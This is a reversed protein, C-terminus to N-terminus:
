RRTEASHDSHSQRVRRTRQDLVTEAVQRLNVGAMNYGINEVCWDRGLEGMRRARAPDAVLLDIAIAMAGVDGPPVVVGRGEGLIESLDSVATAVVPKGLAMADYVKSPVQLESRADAIQPICVVDAANLVEPLDEVPCPGRVEVGELSELVKRYPDGPDGGIVILTASNRMQKVAAALNEIGKHPRPTGLFMVVTRGALGLAAKAEDVLDPRPRLRDTDKAHPILVGGYRKQLGHSAVTIADAAGIYRAMWRTAVGGNPNMLDRVLRLPHVLGPVPTFAQENDDVDLIVPRGRRMRNLLAAGYSSPRPKVAYVIDADLMEVLRALELGYLPWRRGAVSRYRFRGTDAPKWVGNGFMTGFVEVEYDRSLIEALLYARGLCNHSM